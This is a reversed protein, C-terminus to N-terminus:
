GGLLYVKNKGTMGIEKFGYKIIVDKKLDENEQAMPTLILIATMDLTSLYCRCTQFISGIKLNNVGIYKEIVSIDKKFPKQEIM